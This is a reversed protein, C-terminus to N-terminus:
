HPWHSVQQSQAAKVGECDVALSTQGALADHRLERANEVGRAEEHPKSGGHFHVEEALGCKHVQCIQGFLFTCLFHVQNQPSIVWLDLREQAHELHDIRLFDFRVPSLLKDALVLLGLYEFDGEVPNVQSSQGLTEHGEGNWGEFAV